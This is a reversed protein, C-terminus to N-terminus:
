MNANCNMITEPYARLLRFISETYEVSERDLVENSEWLLDIPLKKQSNRTSVSVADYNELLLAITDYKAGCCAYHLATNGERDVNGLTTTDLGLLYQVVSASEHHQCALHLPLAGSNDPIQVAPPSGTVLLTISGLRVNSPLAIHLPLQGNEDPTTMLHHDKAQRSYVLEGNIFAQVQQHYRHINSTIENNEIAAPYADYIVKIIGLAAEINSDNCEQFCAFQLLSWKRKFKQLKVNADCDLLFKVIEVAATPNNRQNSSIIALHIPYIHLPMMGIPSAIQESGPYAELLVRCFEPCRSGCAHHLPLFGDTAAHRISEGPSKEILVKLIEIATIEDVEKNMCLFHLPMCGTNDVRFVSEPAADILLQIINRTVNKNCLAAHLPTYGDTTTSVADPFYELLSRIIGDTVKENYCAVILFRHDSVHINNNNNTLGHREIIERLGDESLSDSACLGAIEVVLSNASQRSYSESM